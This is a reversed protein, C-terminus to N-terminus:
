IAKYFDAPRSCPLEAMVALKDARIGRLLCRYYAEAADHAVDAITPLTSNAEAHLLLQYYSQGNHRMLRKNTVSASRRDVAICWGHRLTLHERMELRTRNEVPVSDRAALAPMPNFLEQM